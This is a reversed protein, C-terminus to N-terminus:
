TVLVHIGGAMLLGSAITTALVGLAITPWIWMSQGRWAATPLGLATIILATAIGGWTVLFAGELGRSHCHLPCGGTAMAFHLACMTSACAVSVALISLLLTAGIDAPSWRRRGPRRAARHSPQRPAELSDFTKDRAANRRDDIDTETHRRRRLRGALALRRLNM